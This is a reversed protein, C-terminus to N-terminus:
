PVCPLCCSTSHIENNTSKYLTHTSTRFDVVGKENANNTMCLNVTAVTPTCYQICCHWYDFISYIHFSEPRNFKQKTGKKKTMQCYLIHLNFLHIVFIENNRTAPSITKLLSFSLRYYGECRVLHIM